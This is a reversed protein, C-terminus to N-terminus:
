SPVEPAFAFGGDNNLLVLGHRTLVPTHTADDGELLLWGTALATTRAEGHPSTVADHHQRCAALIWAASNIVKAMEGHRGGQKRNLRHHCETAQRNCGVWECWGGSRAAVIRRVKQTPGTNKQKRRVTTAERPQRENPVKRRLTSWLREGNAAADALRKESLPNLPGGRKM